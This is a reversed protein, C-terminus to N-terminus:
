RTWFQHLLHKVRKWRKRSYMDERVFEGPPPLVVRFKTMLLHNPTLPELSLPDNLTDVTLPRTNIIGAAECMFKRLSEDDLQSGHQELPIDLINRTSRIMREFVGGFHSANPPNFM